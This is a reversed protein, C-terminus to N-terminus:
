KTGLLSTLVLSNDGGGRSPWYVTVIIKKLGIDVASPELNVNVLSVVTQRELVHAPNNPDASLHARPEVTGVTLEDYPKAILEELKTKAYASALTTQEAGKNVKLSFPFASVAALLGIALIATAVLSEILSFGFPHCRANISKKILVFM